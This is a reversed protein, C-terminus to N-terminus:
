AVSARALQACNAAQDRWVRRVIYLALPYLLVDLADSAIDWVTSQQLQALTHAGLSSQLAGNSLFLSILWLLWWLVIAVPTEELQWHLPSRSAKALDRMAQYPAWVNVIPIFFSGVAWAPSSRLLRAGLEPLNKHALYIWRGFVFATIFFMLTQGVTMWRERLDNARGDALSYPPHSVLQFQMLLSGVHVIECGAGVLLLLSLARTLGSLDRFATGAPDLAAGPSIKLSAASPAYPNNEM